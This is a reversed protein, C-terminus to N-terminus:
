LVFWFFFFCLLFFLFIINPFTTKESTKEFFILFFPPFSSGTPQAVSVLDACLWALRGARACEIARSCLSTSPQAHFSLICDHGVSNVCTPCFTSEPLKHTAFLNCLSLAAESTEQDPRSSVPRAQARTVLIFMRGARRVYAHTASWVRALTRAYANITAGYWCPAAIPLSRPLHVGQMIPERGGMIEALKRPGLWLIPGECAHCHLVCSFGYFSLVGRANPCGALARTRCDNLVANM